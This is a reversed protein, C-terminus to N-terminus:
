SWLIQQKVLQKARFHHFTKDPMWVRRAKVFNQMMVFVLDAFKIYKFNLFQSFSPQPSQKSQHLKLM